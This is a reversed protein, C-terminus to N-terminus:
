VAVETLQVCWGNGEARYDISVVDVMVGGAELYDALARFAVPIESTSYGEWRTIKVHPTWVTKNM